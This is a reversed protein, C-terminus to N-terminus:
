ESAMARYRHAAAVRGQLAEALVEWFAAGMRTATFWAKVRARGAEGLRKREEPSDLLTTIAEALAAPNGPPVVLGTRGHQNVWPVGSPIDTSIVPKGCAMAELQVIGFAESREVSPLVLLECAHLHAVVDTDSVEGTLEVTGPSAMERARQRIHEEMPGSGVLVLRARVRRMAEVLYELGKYYSFRGVFLVIPLPSTRRIAAVRTEIAPTVSFQELRIGFPVVCCKEAVELLLPTWRVHNPSAVIIARARQLARQLFPRYAAYFIRQRVIDSHFWILFTARSGSALYSLLAVPNPEHHVIVDPACRRIHRWYGPMVPVAFPTGICGARIVRVGGREEIVTRPSENAVLATVDARTTHAECLDRLVTEMGGKYPPYYKGLHLIKM